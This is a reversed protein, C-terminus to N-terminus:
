VEVDDIHRAARWFNAVKDKVEILKGGFHVFGIFNIFVIFYRM